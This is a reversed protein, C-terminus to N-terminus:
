VPEDADVLVAATNVPPMSGTLMRETQKPDAPDESGYRGAANYYSIKWFLKRGQL